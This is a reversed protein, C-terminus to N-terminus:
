NLKAPISFMITVSGDQPLIRVSTNAWNVKPIRQLKALIYTQDKKIAAVDGNFGVFDPVRYILRVEFVSENNQLNRPTILGSIKKFRASSGLLEILCACVVPDITKFLLTAVKPTQSQLLPAYKEINGAPFGTLLEAM